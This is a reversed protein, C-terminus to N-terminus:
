KKEAGNVTRVLGLTDLFSDCKVLDIAFVGDVYTASEVKGMECIRQVISKAEPGYALGFNRKIATNREIKEQLPCWDPTDDTPTDTIGRYSDRGSDPDKVVVKFCIRGLKPNQFRYYYPCQTCNDVIILKTM